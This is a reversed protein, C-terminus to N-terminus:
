HKEEEKSVIGLQKGQGDTKNRSCLRGPICELQPSLNEMQLLHSGLDPVAEESGNIGM